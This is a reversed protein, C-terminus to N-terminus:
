LKDSLKLWVSGTSDSNLDDQEAYGSEALPPPFPPSTLAISVGVGKDGGGCRPLPAADGSLHAPKREKKAHYLESEGLIGSSSSGHEFFWFAARYLPGLDDVLSTADAAM